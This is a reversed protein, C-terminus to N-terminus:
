HYSGTIATPTGLADTVKGRAWDELEAIKGDIYKRIQDVGVRGLPGKTLADFVGNNKTFVDKIGEYAKSGFLKDMGFNALMGGLNPLAVHRLRARWKIAFTANQDDSTGNCDPEGWKDTCDFFFEAQAFYTSGQDSDTAWNRNRVESATSVRRENTERYKPMVNIAWIQHGDKGNGGASSVVMVGKNGWGRDFGPDIIQKWTPLDFGAFSGGGNTKAGTRNIEFNDIPEQRERPSGDANTGRGANDRNWQERKANEDNIAQQGDKMQGLVKNLMEDAMGAIDLDNCYRLKIIGGVLSKFLKRVKGMGVGVIPANIVRKLWGPIMSEAINFGFDIILSAVKQCLFNFKEPKVPLGWSEGGFAATPINSAGVVLVNVNDVRGQNGYNRGTQFGKATGIWPYGVAAIKEAVSIGSLIPKFINAYGHYARMVPVYAVCGVGTLICAALLMDHIMGLVIHVIVLLMMIINCAAIFNMGKASLAAATFAGHDAAEQMRDRFIVADGIGIVFWLAGILFFAMFLGTIMIAGRNDDRLRRAELEFSRATLAAEM